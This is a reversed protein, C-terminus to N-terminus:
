TGPAPAPPRGRTGVLLLEHKNRFWYGLGTRDKAWIVQSRYTFGWARMLLLVDPMMPATAWLFLVSDPAAIGGVPLLALTETPTTAYHNDAARDMGTIRSYPEFRLPADVYLVGFLKNPLARIKRALELELAARRAAKAQTLANM